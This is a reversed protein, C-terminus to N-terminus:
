RNHRPKQSQGVSDIERGLRLGGHAPQLVAQFRRLHGEFNLWSDEVLTERAEDEVDVVYFRGLACGDPLTNKDGVGARGRGGSDGERPLSNQDTFSRLSQM